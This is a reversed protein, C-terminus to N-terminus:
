RYRPVGAFERGGANCCFDCGKRFHCVRGDQKGFVGAIAVGQFAIDVRMVDVKRPSSGLDGFCGGCEACM